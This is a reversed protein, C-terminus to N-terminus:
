GADSADGDDDAFIIRRAQEWPITKVRGAAVDDLRRKIEAAWAAEIEPTAFVPELSELLHNALVAREDHPLRLAAELIAKADTPM